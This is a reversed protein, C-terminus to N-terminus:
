LDPIEFRMINSKSDPALSTILVIEHSFWQVLHSRFEYELKRGRGRGRMGPGSLTSVSRSPSKPDM